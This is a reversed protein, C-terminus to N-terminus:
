ECMDCRSGDGKNLHTCSPCSWRDSSKSAAPAMVDPPSSTTPQQRSAQTLFQPPTESRIRPLVRIGRKAAAQLLASASAPTAVDPAGARGTKRRNDPLNILGDECDNGDSGSHEASKVHPQFPGFLTAAATGPAPHRKVATVRTTRDMLDLRTLLENLERRHELRMANLENSLVSVSSKLEDIVSILTTKDARLATIDHSQEVLKKEQKKSIEMLEGFAKGVRQPDSIHTHYEQRNVTGDCDLRLGNRFLECNIPTLPCENELHSAM